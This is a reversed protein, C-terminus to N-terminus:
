KGWARVMGMGVKAGWTKVLFKATRVSLLGETKRARHLHVSNVTWRV